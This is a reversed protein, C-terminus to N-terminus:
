DDIALNGKKFLWEKIVFYFGLVCFNRKLRYIMKKFALKYLIATLALQPPQRDWQRGEHVRHLARLMGVPHLMLRHFLGSVFLLISVVADCVVCLYM